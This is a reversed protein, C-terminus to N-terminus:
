RHELKSEAYERAQEKIVSPLDLPEYGPPYGFTAIRRAAGVYDEKTLHSSLDIFSM